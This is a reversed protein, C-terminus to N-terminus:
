QRVLAVATLDETRTPKTFTQKALNYWPPRTFQHAQEIIAQCLDLASHTNSNELLQTVREPGFPTRASRVEIIGKTVLLLLAGPEFAEIGPEFTLLSFLGLPMCTNPLPRTGDTDRFIAPQGGANIYTLINLTLDFCALFTPAFCVGNTTSILTGNINHALTSIADTLNTGPTGFLEPARSRFTDQACAAITHASSRSGAIDTLLFVLHPGLIIADFFDGGTRASHYRSQIDLGQLPPLATPQPTRVSMPSNPLTPDTQCSFPQPSFPQSPNATLPHTQASLM